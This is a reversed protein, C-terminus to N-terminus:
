LRDKVRRAAAVEVALLWNQLDRWRPEWLDRKALKRPLRLPARGTGDCVQCPRAELTPADPRRRFGLGNCARCNPALWDDVVSRALLALERDTAKWKKRTSMLMAHRTVHDLVPRYARADNAYKLALLESLMANRASAMGVAGLTDVDCAGLKHRLDRSVRAAAVREQISSPDSGAM